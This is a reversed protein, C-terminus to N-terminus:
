HVRNGRLWTEVAKVKHIHHVPVAFLNRDFVVFDRVQRGRYLGDRSGSAHGLRRQHHLGGAARSVGARSWVASCGGDLDAAKDVHTQM